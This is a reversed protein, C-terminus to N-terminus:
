PAIFLGGNSHKWFVRDDFNGFGDNPAIDAFVLAGRDASNPFLFRGSGNNLQFTVTGDAVEDRSYSGGDEKLILPAGQFRGGLFQEPASFPHFKGQGDQAWMLDARYPDCTALAPEQFGIDKNFEGLGLCLTRNANLEIDEIFPFSDAFLSSSKNQLPSYVYWQQAASDSCEVHRLAQDTGSINDPRPTLCRMKGKFMVRFRDDQDRKWQQHPHDADCKRSLVTNETDAELCLNAITSRIQGNDELFFRTRNVFPECDRMRTSGDILDGKNLEVGGARTLLCRNKANPHRNQLLVPIDLKPTVSSLDALPDNLLAEANAKILAVQIGDQLDFPRLLQTIKNFAKEKAEELEAETPETPSPDSRPISFDEINKGNRRIVGWIRGSSYSLEYTFDRLRDLEKEYRSFDFLIETAIQEARTKYTSELNTLLKLLSLKFNALALPATLDYKERANNPRSFAAIFVAETYEIDDIINVIDGRIESKKADPLDELNIDKIDDKQLRESLLDIGYKIDNLHDQTELLANADLETRVLEILFDVTLPTQVGCFLTNGLAIGAGAAAGAGPMASVATSLINLFEGSDCIAANASQATLSISAVCAAGAVYRIMKKM